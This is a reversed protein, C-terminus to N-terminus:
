GAPYEGPSLDETGEPFAPIHSQDGEPKESKDELDGLEQLWDPFDRRPVDQKGEVEPANETPREQPQTDELAKPEPEEFFAQTPEIGQDEPFEEEAEQTRIPQTDSLPIQPEQSAQKEPKDSPLGYRERIEKLWGPEKDDGSEGSTESHDSESKSSELSQRKRLDKLWDPLNDEPDQNSRYSM